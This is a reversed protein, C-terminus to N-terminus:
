VHISIMYAGLGVYVVAARGPGTDGEADPMCPLRPLRERSAGWSCGGALGPKCSLPAARLSCTHVLDLRFDQDYWAACPMLCKTSASAHVCKSPGCLEM